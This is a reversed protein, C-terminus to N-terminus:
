PRCCEKLAAERARCQALEEEMESVKDHCTESRPTACVPQAQSSMRKVADEMRRVSDCDRLSEECLTTVDQKALLEEEMRLQVRSEVEEQLRAEVEEQVREEMEARMIAIVRAEVQQVKAEMAASSMM